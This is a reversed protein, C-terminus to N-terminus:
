AYFDVADRRASVTVTVAHDVTGQLAQRLAQATAQAREYPVGARAAVAVTLTAAGLHFRLDVPGLVPADYRLSLTHGAAAPDGTAGGAGKETVTLAGGGPLPVQMAPPPQAPHNPDAIQMLVREASVDRVELRLEQGPRVNHPLEADILYGAISLSGRGNEATVVRAALMRGASIRVDPLLVDRLLRLDIALSQV